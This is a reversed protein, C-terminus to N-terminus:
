EKIRKYKITGGLEPVDVFFNVTLTDATLSTIKYNYDSLLCGELYTYKITDNVLDFVHRRDVDPISDPMPYTKRLTDGRIELHNDPHEIDQWVGALAEKTIPMPRVYKVSKEQNTSCNFLLVALILYCQKM